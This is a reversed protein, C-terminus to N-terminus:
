KGSKRKPKDPLPLLLPRIKQYLDRITVDHGSLVKEIENLRKELVQNVLFTERLRVFARIVYLSMAVARKTKLVNAAMLAGHETFVYPLYRINRKSATAIQSRMPYRISLHDCNTVVENNESQTLQFMFDNPFRDSNRRVQENLRKTSVGYLVALDQDLIVRHGRFVHICKEISQTPFITQSAKRKM